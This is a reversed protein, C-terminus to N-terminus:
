ADARGGRTAAILLDEIAGHRVRSGAVALREARCVALVEEMSTGRTLPVRLGGPTREARPFHRRIREVGEGSGPAVAVEAVRRALVRAIPQDALIRGEDMVVVRTVVRELAALDHSAIVVARGRTGLAALRGHLARLVLPDLGSLVEDLVLAGTGAVAAGGLAVRQASGRSLTAVRRSADDGVATIELGWRVLSAVARREARHAALYRLWALAHFGDPVSPPDGAYGVISRSERTAAPRGLVQVSGRDPVLEGALLRLLTSKGAGNPGVVGVIEGGHVDLELPGIVRRAAFRGFIKQAGQARFVSGTV